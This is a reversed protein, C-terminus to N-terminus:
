EAPLKQKEVEVAATEAATTTEGDMPPEQADSATKPDATENTKAHPAGTGNTSTQAEAAGKRPKDKPETDKPEPGKM